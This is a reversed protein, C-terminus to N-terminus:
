WAKMDIIKWMGDTMEGRFYIPVAETFFPSAPKMVCVANRGDPPTFRLPRASASSAILSRTEDSLSFAPSLYPSMEDDLGLIISEAICLACEAPTVARFEGNPNQLIEESEIEFQADKQAYIEAKEHGALDHLARVVRIKGGPLFTIERGTVSLLLHEATQTLVLTYRLRDSTEGSAFLVGDGEAFVPEMAGEPLPYAHSRGQFQTELYSFAAAKIFKFTRGAGTLTKVSPASAHILAPSLAIETIGFPWSTVFVCRDPQISREVPKGNSFAIRAAISLAFPQFPRFEIVIAGFPSVPRFLPADTRVEGQYTGNISILGDFASTIMIMPHM